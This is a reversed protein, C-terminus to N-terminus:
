EKFVCTCRKYVCCLLYPIYAEISEQRPMIEKQTELSEIWKRGADESKEDEDMRRRTTVPLLETVMPDYRFPMRKTKEPAPAAGHPVNKTVMPDYRFPMRKTKERAPAAGHPVNRIDPGSGADLQESTTGMNEVKYCADAPPSQENDGHIGPSDQGSATTVMAVVGFVFVAELFRGM